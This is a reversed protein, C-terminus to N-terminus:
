FFARFIIFFYIFFSQFHGTLQDNESSKIKKEDGGVVLDPFNGQLDVWLFNQGLCFTSSIISPTLLANLFLKGSKDHISSWVLAASM